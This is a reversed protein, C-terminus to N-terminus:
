VKYVCEYNRVCRKDVRKLQRFVSVRNDSDYGDSNSESRKQNKDNGNNNKSNYYVVITKLIAVEIKDVNNSNNGNSSDSNVIRTGQGRTLFLIM